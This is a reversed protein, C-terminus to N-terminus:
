EAKPQEPAPVTSKRKPRFILKFLKVLGWVFLGIILGVPLLYLAFWIAFNGIGQLTSILANIADKAVGVPRWNGIKIDQYTDDSYLRVEVSSLRSAEEYYQIQGRITEIQHRISTLQNFVNLIDNVDGSRDMLEQLEKEAMELNRIQSNLDVYEKTVDQGSVNMERVLIAQAQIDGLVTELQAADVRITISGGYGDTSYDERSYVHSSVVFGGYKTALARIHNATGEINAVVIAVSANQIVIREPTESPQQPAASNEYAAPMEYQAEGEVQSASGFSMDNTRADYSASKVMGPACATLALLCVILLLYFRKM